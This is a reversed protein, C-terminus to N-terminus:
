KEIEFYGYYISLIKVFFVILFSIGKEIKKDYIKKVKM